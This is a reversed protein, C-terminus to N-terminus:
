AHGASVMLDVKDEVMRTLLEQFKQINEERLRCDDEKSLLDAIIAGSAVMVEAFFATAERAQLGDKRNSGRRRQSHDIITSVLNAYLERVSADNVAASDVYINERMIKEGCREDRENDRDFLAREAM